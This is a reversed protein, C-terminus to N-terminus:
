KKIIEPYLRDIGSGRMDGLLSILKSVEDQDPCKCMWHQTTTQGINDVAYQEITSLENSLTALTISSSLLVPYFTM